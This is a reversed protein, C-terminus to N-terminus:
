ALWDRGVLSPGSGEVALLPFDKKQVPYSVSTTFCGIVGIQEGTYSQLKVDSKILSPPSDWLSQFINHSVVSVAAGTDM